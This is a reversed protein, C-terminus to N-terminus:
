EGKVTLYASECICLLSRAKGKREGALSASIDVAGPRAIKPVDRESM